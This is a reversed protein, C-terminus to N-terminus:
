RGSESEEPAEEEAEGSLQEPMTIVPTAGDPQDEPLYLDGTQGCAVTVLLAVVTLLRLSLRGVSLDHM